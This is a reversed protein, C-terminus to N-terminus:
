LQCIKNVKYHGFISIAGMQGIMIDSNVLYEFFKVFRQEHHHFQYDALTQQAYRM